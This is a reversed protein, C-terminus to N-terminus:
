KKLLTILEKSIDSINKEESFGSLGIVNSIFKSTKNNKDIRISYICETIILDSSVDSTHSSISLTVLITIPVNYFNSIGNEFSSEFFSTWKKPNCNVKLVSNSLQSLNDEVSKKNLIIYNSSDVVNYIKKDGAVQGSENKKFYLSIENYFIFLLLVM